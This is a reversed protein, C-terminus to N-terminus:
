KAYQSIVEMIKNHVVYELKLSEFRNKFVTKALDITDGVTFPPLVYNDNPDNKGIFALELRLFAGLRHKKCNEWHEYM